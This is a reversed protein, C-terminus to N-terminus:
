GIQRTSAVHTGSDAQADLGEVDIIRVQEVQEPILHKATRMVDSDALAVDRSVVRATIARDRAIEENVIRELDTKFGDPVEPLNFDMRGTLPEMNSGTVLAAFDRFVVGCVVHLASHTRMLSRRRVDDLRAVVATGVPPVPDGEVPVLAGAAGVGEVRTFVGGWELVGVDAPQGGGGPYFASEDLTVGDPASAVVTAPWRMAQQDRWYLPFNM